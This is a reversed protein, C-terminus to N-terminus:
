HERNTILMQILKCNVTRHLHTVKNERFVPWEPFTPEEFKVNEFIHESLELLKSAKFFNSDVFICNQDM